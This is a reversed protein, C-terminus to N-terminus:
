IQPFRGIKALEVLVRLEIEDLVADLEPEVRERLGRLQEVMGDLREPAVQGVLLDAKMGELLDLLRRGRKVAKRRSESFDGAAQLALIADLGATPAVPAATGARQPGQEEAPVFAPGSGAKGPASRGSVTSSRNTADIRM